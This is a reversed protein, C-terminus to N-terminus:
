GNLVGYLRDRWDQWKQPVDFWYERLMPVVDFEVVSKMWETTCQKQGCFYSHGICFGSGLSDDASIFENLEKINTILADFVVNNLSAQYAKFGASDFGPGMDFFSFRRRLAYDILALSRDATNMMGILYLNKPVSFSQGNYALTAKTGRYDKEILMLLEGFIKSLNGRNIEDIIFFYPELPSNAAKQCFRYFVGYQLEFGEGSPKYGMIFDEYSYNQHLQIFEIHSDDKRGMMAYALRRAAFTKGVGPAGELIINQKCRLLAMLTDFREETMFVDKLFDAGAYPPIIEKEVDSVPNAERVQDLIFDYEEKTLKFLSGQPSQFYEMKALEPCNVLSDYDIPAVLGETKKFFINKGDNAKSVVALAVVKKVPTSEYGIVQDGEKADIFNQFIRRKNGNSNYITYSQEEGVDIDAFSWIKPNANLWWYGSSINENGFLQALTLGFYPKLLLKEFLPEDGDAVKMCTSNDNPTWWKDTNKYPSTDRSKAILEYNRQYWEEKKEPNPVARDDTIRGLLQVSNSYCLYFYDGKKIYSTFNEGQSIKGAGKAKTYRDVVIVHKDEFIKDEAQTIWDTGHSVKWIAPTSVASADMEAVRNVVKITEEDEADDSLAEEADKQKFYNQQIYYGVDITMTKLATDPYCSDDIVSHLIKTVEEDKQLQMCIENYTNFWETINEAKSNMKPIYDCGLTIAVKRYIRFKYIYYKDPYRLWLYTSIANPNQYHNKAPNDFYKNRYDEFDAEFKLIRDVFNHSEDFLNAFQNTIFEKNEKAIGCIVGAPYYFHSTLLNEAKETAKAFMSSFDSANIDWNDQFQKVAQWKYKEESWTKDVFDSKYVVLIENLKETNIM